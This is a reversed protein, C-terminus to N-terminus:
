IVGEIIKLSYLKYTIEKVAKMHNHGLVSLIIDKIEIIFNEVISNITKATIFQGIDNWRPEM